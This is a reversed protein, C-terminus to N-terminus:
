VPAAWMCVLLLLLLLRSLVHGLVKARAREREARMRTAEADRQADDVVVVVEGTQSAAVGMGKGHRMVCLLKTKFFLLVYVYM